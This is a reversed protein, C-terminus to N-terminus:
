SRMDVAMIESGITHVRARVTANKMGSYSDVSVLEHYHTILDIGRSHARPNLM